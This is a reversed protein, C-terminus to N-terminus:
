WLKINKKRCFLYILGYIIISIIFIIIVFKKYNIKRKSFGEDDETLVTVFDPKWCFLGISVLLLPICLLFIIVKKSKFISTNQSKYSINTNTFSKVKERLISLTSDFDNM